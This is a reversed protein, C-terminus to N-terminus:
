RRTLKVQKLDMVHTGLMSVPELVLKARGKPLKLTGCKLTAWERNRYRTRGMEDRHPLPIEPADAAPVTLEVSEQGVSLRLKSGAADPPCFYALELEYEGATVVEIEFWVRAKADTWETLWDNAFGPGNAFQLPTDFYSQPAHLEVPNHEAHGVPLPFRQLGAESIEAFWADYRGSLEKVIEPHGAAIDRKQGPDTKM